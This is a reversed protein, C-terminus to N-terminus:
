CYISAWSEYGLFLGNETAPNLILQSSIWPVSRQIMLDIDQEIGQTEEEGALHIISKEFRQRIDKYPLSTVLRKAKREDGRNVHSGSIRPRRRQM